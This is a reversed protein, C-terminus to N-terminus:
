TGIGLAVCAEAYNGACLSAPTAYKDAIVTAKLNDRTVVKGDVLFAPIKATGNDVTLAPETTKGRLLDYVVEAAKEAELRFSKYVTMTQQQGSMVRQLGAVEADQGTMATVPPFGAAILEGAVAGAIGDIPAFVGTIRRGRLSPLTTKLWARVQDANWGPGPIQFRAAIPLKGNIAAAAERTYLGANVDTAPGDIWILEGGVPGVAQLLFEGQMRGTKANDFSVYYAIQGAALRDYAVVPVGRDKAQQVLPAAKSADVANLVVVKAGADLVEGFQKTQVALDQEAYRVDVTCRPCLQLMRQQFYPQDHAIYRNGSSRVLLLAITDTREEGTKKADDGTCAALSVAMAAASVVALLRRLARGRSENM